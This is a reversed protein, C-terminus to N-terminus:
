EIVQEFLRLTGQASGDRIAGTGHVFGSLGGLLRAQKLQKGFSEIDLDEMQGAGMLGAVKGTLWGTIGGGGAAAAAASGHLPAAHQWAACAQPPVLQALRALGGPLRLM